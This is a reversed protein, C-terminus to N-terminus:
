SNVDEIISCVVDLSNATNSQVQLVDDSELVIKQGFVAQLTSGAPVPAEYIVHFNNVGRQIRVSAQVGTGAINCLDLEILISSEGNPCTYLTQWSDGVSSLCESKFIGKVPM